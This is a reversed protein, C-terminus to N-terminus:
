RLEEATAAAVTEFAEDRATGTLVVTRDELEAVLAYAVIGADKVDRRDYVTWRLGGIEVIPGAQAGRVANAIWTADAGFAQALQVRETEPSLFGIEWVDIGEVTGSAVRAYNATWGEGLDPLVLRNDFRPQAQETAAEYDVPKLLASQDPRAVVLVLFLVVALTGVLAGVLALWTKGERHIRSTEAKRAATEAPTEARGLEAVIPRGQDDRAAHRASM